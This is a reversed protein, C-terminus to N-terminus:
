DGATKISMFRDFAAPPALIYASQQMPANTCTCLGVTFLLIVLSLACARAVTRAVLAHRLELKVIHWYHGRAMTSLRCSRKIVDVCQVAAVDQVIEHLM